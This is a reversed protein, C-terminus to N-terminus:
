RLVQLASAVEACTETLVKTVNKEFQGREASPLQRVAQMIEEMKICEQTKRLSQTYDSKTKEKLEVDKTDTFVKAASVLNNQQACSCYRSAVEEPTINNNVTFPSSLLLGFFLSLMSM